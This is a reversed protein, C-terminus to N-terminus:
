GGQVSGELKLYHYFIDSHTKAIPQNYGFLLHFVIRKSLKSWILNPGNRPAKLKQTRSSLGPLALLVRMRKKKKKKM